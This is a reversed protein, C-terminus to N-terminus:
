NCGVADIKKEARALFPDETVKQLAVCAEDYQKTSQYASGLEFNIASMWIVEKEYQLAKQCYEIANEAQDSKNAVMALHYLARPNTPNAALANECAEVVYSYDNEEPDIAGVEEMIFKNYYSDIVGNIQDIAKTNNKAMAGEKANNFCEMMEETEDQELYVMGKGQCAQYLNPNLAIAKDFYEIADDYSKNKRKTNGERVYLQPLYGAAKKSIDENNGFLAATEVTNELYPIANDYQKRKMFTTAQRYYTAPIQKEAQAKMDNAEDGVVEAMTLVQNFHELAVVYEQGNLKEVGTNFENIVDTLTQASLTAAVLVGAFTALVRFKM